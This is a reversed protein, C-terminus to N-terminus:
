GFALPKIKLIPSPSPSPSAVPSPNFTAIPSASPTISSTPSPSPSPSPVTSVIPSAVPSPNPTPTPTETTTPSPITGSTVLAVAQDYTYGGTDEPTLSKYPLGCPICNPSPGGKFIYSILYVADGVNVSCDANADALSMDPPVPGGKFIYSILYVADGVNVGSDGNADGCFQAMGGFLVKLQDFTIGNTPNEPLVANFDCSPAQGNDAVFDKLYVLDNVDIIGNGNADAGCLNSAPIEEYLMNMLLNVDQMNISGDANLDGCGVNCSGPTFKEEYLVNNGRYLYFTTGDTSKKGVRNGAYDYLYDAAVGNNTLRTMRSMSDYNLGINQTGSIGIVNGAPDYEYGSQAQTITNTVAQLRFGNYVYSLPNLNQIGGSVQMTQRDGLLNKYGYIIQGAPNAGQYDTQQLRYIKDYAYHEDPTAPMEGPNGTNVTYGIDEVNGVPDYRMTRQFLANATNYPSVKSYFLSNLQNKPDYSFDAYVPNSSPSLIKKKIGGAATYEFSAIRETQLDKLYDYYQLKGSDDYAYITKGGDPLTMSVVNDSSDYEFTLAYTREGLYADRITKEQGVVRGKADYTFKVGGTNDRVECLLNLSSDLGEVCVESGYAYTDYYYEVSYDWAGNKYYVTKILRGLKDYYNRGINGNADTTQLVNGASDKSVVNTGGVPSYSAYAGGYGNGDFFNRLVAEGSEDYVGKPNNMYDYAGIFTNGGLQYPGAYGPINKNYGQFVIDCAHAANQDTVKLKSIVARVKSSQFDIVDHYYSFAGLENGNQDLLLNKCFENENWNGNLGDVPRCFGPNGIIGTCYGYFFGHDTLVSPCCDNLITCSDGANKCEAAFVLGSLVAMMFAAELVMARSNNKM